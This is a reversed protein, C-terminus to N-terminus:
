QGFMIAGFSDPRHFAGRLVPSFGSFTDKREPPASMTRCFNAGWMDGVVDDAPEGGLSEFPIAIEVVWQDDHTKAAIQADSQWKHDAESGGGTFLAQQMIKGDMSIMLWYYKQCEREPDLFIELYDHGAKASRKPAEPDSCVFSIYLEAEDHAVRLETPWQTKKGDVNNFLYGRTAGQKWAEDSLDGDIEIEGDAKPCHMHLDKTQLTKKVNEVYHLYAKEMTGLFYKAFVGTPREFRTGDTLLLARDAEKRYHALVEQPYFEDWVTRFGANRAAIQESKNEIEAM